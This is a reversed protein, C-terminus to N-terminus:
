EKINRLSKLINGRLPMGSHPRQPLAIGFNAKAFKM